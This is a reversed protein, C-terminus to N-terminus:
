VGGSPSASAERSSISARVGRGVRRLEDTGVAGARRRAARRDGSSVKHEARAAHVLVVLAATRHDPSRGDVLVEGMRERLLRRRDTDRVVWRTMPFLGLVKSHQADLVGADTLRRLLELRVGRAVLDVSAQPGRGRDGHWSHAIRRAATDLLDDLPGGRMTPTGDAVFRGPRTGSDADTTSRVRGSDVLDVLVAGGLVADLAARPVLPRGTVEDLLVLLADECTLPM